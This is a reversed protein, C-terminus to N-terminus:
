TVRDTVCVCLNVRLLVAVMKVFLSFDLIACDSITFFKLCICLPVHHALHWLALDFGAVLVLLLLPM